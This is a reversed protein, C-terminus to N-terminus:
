IQFFPMEKEQSKLKKSFVGRFTKSVFFDAVIIIM